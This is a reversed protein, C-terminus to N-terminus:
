YGDPNDPDNTILQALRPYSQDCRDFETRGSFMDLHVHEAVEGEGIETVYRSLKAEGGYRALVITGTDDDLYVGYKQKEVRTGEGTAKTETM